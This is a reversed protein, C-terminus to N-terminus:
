EEPSEPTAPFPPCHQVLALQAPPVYLFPLDPSSPPYAWLPHTWPTHESPYYVPFMPPPGAPSFPVSPVPFWSVIKDHPHKVPPPPPVVSGPLKKRDLYVSPVVDGNGYNIEM